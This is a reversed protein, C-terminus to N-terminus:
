LSTELTYIYQYIHMFAKNLQFTSLCWLLLLDWKITAYVREFIYISIMRLLFYLNIWTIPVKYFYIIIVYQKWWQKMNKHFSTYDKKM